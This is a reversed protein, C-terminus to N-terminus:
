IVFPDVTWAENKKDRCCDFCILNPNGIASTNVSRIYFTSPSCDRLSIEFLQNFLASVTGGEHYLPLPSFHVSFLILNACVSSLCNSLTAESFHSQRNHKTLNYAHYWPLSQTPHQTNWGQFPRVPAISPYAKLSLEFESLFLKPHLRVYDNTTYDKGNIPAAKAAQLYQKWNNELETCALILLDRTKHSYNLLSNQSPEIYLFLEDLREILLRISQLHEHREVDTSGLGHRADDYTSIGPRWVGAM